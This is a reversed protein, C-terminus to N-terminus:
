FPVETARLFTCCNLDCLFSRRLNHRDKVDSFQFSSPRIRRFQMLLFMKPSPSWCFISLRPSKSVSKVQSFLSIRMLPEQIELYRCWRLRGTVSPKSISFQVSSYDQRRFMYNRVLNHFYM